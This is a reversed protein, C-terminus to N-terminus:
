GGAQVLTMIAAPPELLSLDVDGTEINVLTMVQQQGMAEQQIVTPYLLDGFRQYNLLRSVVPVEGMPTEQTATVALVLGSDKSYCETTERGSTWTYHVEWCAEGDYANEGVTEFSEFLSPDRVQYRPDSQERMAALEGGDLLRPGQMPDMSWGVEGTFGSLMDGMGPITVKMAMAGDAANVTELDGSVGMAPMEFTGTARTAVSASAAARGGIAEVYRDILDQAPPLDQSAAAGPLVAALAVAFAGLRSTRSTPNM